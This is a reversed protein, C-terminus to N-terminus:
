CFGRHKWFYADDYYAEYERQHPDREKKIWNSIVPQEGVTLLLSVM